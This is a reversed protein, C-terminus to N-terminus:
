AIGNEKLIDFLEQLRVAYTHYKKIKQYGQEAIYEREKEHELFYDAKRLLDEKGEFIVLEKGNEFHRLLDERYTTLCFGHSAMIDLIRLPMGDLINPITFNLNIKSHYFVIPMKEWYDLRGRNKVLPMQETESDTYLDVKHSLSLANLYLERELNAAKFGLVTSCFILNLDAFSEERKELQFYESLQILIEETLMESLLNGGSINIQAWLSADLYGRLYDPLAPEIMDYRNREYLNGVFSIEAREENKSRTEACKKEKFILHNLREIEAALPLYFIHKVGMAKFKKVEAFDFTFIYNCQNFISQNYMSILMSDCNWSIYPIKNKECVNSIVTFYNISMVVDYKKNKLQEKMYFSFDSDGDFDKIDYFFIDLDHGMNELASIFDRYNYAKWRYILIKM